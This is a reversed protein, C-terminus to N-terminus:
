NLTELKLKVGNNNYRLLYNCLKIIENSNDITDELTMDNFVLGSYSKRYFMKKNKDYYVNVNDNNKRAIRAYKVIDNYFNM